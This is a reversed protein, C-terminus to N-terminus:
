LGLDKLTGVFIKSKFENGKYNSIWDRLAAYEDPLVSTIQRELKSFDYVDTVYVKDDEVVVGGGGVSFAAEETPTIDGTKMRAELKDRTRQESSAVQARVNSENLNYDGYDITGKGKKLANTAAFALADIVQPNYDDETKDGALPNFFAILNKAVQTGSASYLGKLTNVLSEQKELEEESEIEVGKPKFEIAPIAMESLDPAKPANAERMQEVTMEGMLSTSKPEATTGATNDAIRGKSSFDAGLVKRLASATRGTFKSVTESVTSQVDDSVDSLKDIVSGGSESVSSVTQSIREVVADSTGSVTKLVSEKATGIAESVDEFASVQPELIPEEKKIAEVTEEVDVAPEFTLAQGAFIKNVDKINNLKAIESVTMGEDKAIKSLTDGAKIVYGGEAFMPLGRLIDERMKTTIKLTPLKVTGDNQKYKVDKIEVNYKKAFNNKWLKMLTKDYFDEFKQGGQKFLMNKTLVQTGEKDPTAAMLSEANGKGLIKPLKQKAEEMDDFSILFDNYGDEGKKVGQLRIGGDSDPYMLVQSVEAMKGNRVAQMKGTTLAVQDYGEEAATMMAKRLGQLAWRKESKFPLDPVRDRSLVPLDSIDEIFEMRLEEIEVTQRAIDDMRITVEELKNLNADVDINNEILEDLDEKQGVLDDYEAELDKTPERFDARAKDIDDVDQQTLYGTKSQNEKKSRSATQQADAQVEDVLLTKVFADDVQEADALRVHAVPNVLEPFHEHEYDMSVKKFKSPLTFVLERYNQTATGEFAFDLHMDVTKFESANTKDFEDKYQNFMDDWANPDDSGLLDDMIEREFPHNKEMWEGFEDIEDRAEDYFDDVPTDDDYVGEKREKHRGTYVDFDFKTDDFYQSLEEKSVEPRGGFVETAGTWELEEESVGKDKLRKLMVDGTGAKQELNMAEKQALSFFGSDRKPAFAKAAKSVGQVISGIAFGHRPDTSDFKASSSLKFQQPEFLIYSYNSEGAFGEEIENVYKIGDFGLSQLEKRLDITLENEMLNIELEDTLNESPMDEVKQARSRLAKMKGVIDSTVKVGSSEVNLLLENIGDLSSLIDVAKWGGVITESEYILPNKVNIYGQQVVTEKIQRGNKEAVKKLREFEKEFQADQPKTKNNKFKMYLSGAGKDVADYIADRFKITQAVGKTGVHTGMENAFTFSVNFESEKFSSISRYVEEQKDSDKIHKELATQREADTLSSDPKETPKIKPAKFKSFNVNGRAAINIIVDRAIIPAGEVSVLPERSKIVETLFDHTADLSQEDFVAVEAKARDADTVKVNIREYTNKLEQIDSYVSNQIVSKSNGVDEIEEITQLAFLQDDTYGLEKQYEALHERAKFEDSSDVAKKFNTSAKADDLSGLRVNFMTSINAEALDSALFEDVGIEGESLRLSISGEVKDAAARLAEPNIYGKTSSALTGYIDGSLAVPLSEELAADGGKKFLSTIAPAIEAAVKGGLNFKMAKPTEDFEEIMGGFVDTQARRLGQRYRKVTKEGLIQKGFYSGSLLPVKYGITPIIGQQILSIADSVAPGFPMAAYSINSKTYKTAQKARQFSDLLLGNGGWRAVATALIEDLDKNRESEGGTRLYNTWRAMGTMITGAAVLKGTNRTPAKVFSKAAGKLVTNTFAAPYSLLQFFVATKPNSFLLPKLGSMATPQLVVSNTYRAVGGLLDNKYFDDTRKAGGNYWDVAKKYDIGLEALEGALVEGDKDMAQNKYRVALKEINENILNKGSSHSVNQVFKTWQDLMNLRFFKNSANQLGVTMLEDGALRDGVQALAQDVHISFNRMESLAEGATMGNKTMLESELDKTIRKYSQEMAEAFGKASNRVGAKGINLFVETLSSITAMGLLAVRSAFSYTDVAVQTKSGYREMGEGTATRYLKEIQGAIKPTFTEGAEEMEEKIRNVYFGKFEEFNKVGLVRHKALSKGYQFTYAHLTGLVDNNLFKEFDADDGITNIKRKASFFHGGGGGSDVQNKVDLMSKVTAKAASPSMEAKTVFLEILEDQNEEIAKRSWQRPVYNDTLKDIVKIKSLDVGMDNYLSKIEASAKIIAANTADDFYEYKVPKSSRLNKSLAANVDTAFKTDIDSLSLKDVIARFRENMKGTVERQVESLDKDVVEDQVKFKIGFEHSLKKQLQAATGSFKTLPSLVGAAKGYFNGSINSAVTYLGQKIANTRGEVTTENAAAARIRALIEKKTQEGGGLDAAFKEAAREMAEGDFSTSARAGANDVGDVVSATRGELRLAEELISGSSAPMWEGEVAEDYAKSGEPISMEKPSETSDRFARNGIKSGAYLGIGKTIGFGIGGGIVGGALTEVYSYDEESKIDASIDLEQMLHGAVLGHGTGILTTATLPNKASAAYSAKVAKTLANQGAVQAAKRGAATVATGVGMTVTGSLLGGITALGEPSFVLDSGYDAVAGGLESAGTISAKDWRSKMTRYAQKVEEPADKMSNALSIPAGIRATLDRMYEAPDDTQGTTAQDIAYRAVSQNEALYDTLVEFSSLVIEDQEWESVSYNEPVVQERYAAAETESIGVDWNGQAEVKNLRNSFINESM